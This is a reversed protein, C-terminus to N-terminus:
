LDSSEKLPSEGDMFTCYSIKAGHTGFMAREGTLIKQSIEQM